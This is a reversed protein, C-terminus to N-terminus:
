RQSQYQAYYPYYGQGGGQYQSQGAQNQYQQPQYNQPPQYQYPQTYQPQQYNQPQYQAPQAYQPQQQVPQYYQQQQQAGDYTGPTHKHLTIWNWWEALKGEQEQTQAPQYPPASPVDMTVPITKPENQM